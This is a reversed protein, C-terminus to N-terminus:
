RFISYDVVIKGINNIDLYLNPDYVEINSLDQNYEERMFSDQNGIGRDQKKVLTEKYKEIDHDIQQKVLCM